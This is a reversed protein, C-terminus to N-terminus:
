NIEMPFWKVLSKYSGIKLYGLYLFPVHFHQRCFTSWQTKEGWHTLFPSMITM